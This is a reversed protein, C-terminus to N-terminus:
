FLTEKVNSLTWVICENGASNKVTKGSDILFGDVVLSRRSASVTQHKGKLYAELQYDTAGGNAEIYDFVKRRISGTKPLIKKGASVSTKKARSSLHIVNSDISRVPQQKRLLHEKVILNVDINDLHQGIVGTTKGQLIDYAIPNFQCSSGYEADMWQFVESMKYIPKKCFHCTSKINM